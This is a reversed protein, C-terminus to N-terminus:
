QKICTTCMFPTFKGIAHVISIRDKVFPCEHYSAISPSDNRTMKRFHKTFKKRLTRQISIILRSPTYLKLNQRAVWLKICCSCKSSAIVFEIIKISHKSTPILSWKLIVLAEIGCSLFLKWDFIDMYKYLDYPTNWINLVRWWWAHVTVASWLYTGRRM